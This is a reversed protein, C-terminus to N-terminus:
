SPPPSSKPTPLSLAWRFWAAWPTAIRAAPLPSPPATSCKLAGALHDLPSVIDTHLKPHHWPTPSADSNHDATAWHHRALRPEPRHKPPSAPPPPLFPPPARCHHAGRIPAVPPLIFSTHHHLWPRCFPPPPRPKPVLMRVTLSVLPGVHNWNKELKDLVPEVQLIGLKLM